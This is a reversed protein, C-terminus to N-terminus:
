YPEGHRPAPQCLRCRRRDSLSSVPPRYRCPVLVLVASSAENVGTGVCAGVCSVPVSVSVM